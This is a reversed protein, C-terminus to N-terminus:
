KFAPPLNTARWIKKGELGVTEWEQLYEVTKVVNSPLIYYEIEWRVRAKGVVPDLETKTMRVDTISVKRDGEARRVCAEVIEPTMFRGCANEFEGWRFMKAFERQSMDFNEVVVRVDSCSALSCGALVLFTLVYKRPDLLNM